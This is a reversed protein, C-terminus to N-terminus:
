REMSVRWPRHLFSWSVGSTLHAPNSCDQEKSQLHELCSTKCKEKEPVQSWAGNM